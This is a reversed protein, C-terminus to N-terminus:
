LASFEIIESEDKKYFFIYKNWGVLIIVAEEKFYKDLGQWHVCKETNNRMCCEWRPSFSSRLNWCFQLQVSTNYNCKYISKLYIPLDVSHHSKTYGNELVHNNQCEKANESNLMRPM